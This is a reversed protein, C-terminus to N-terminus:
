RQLNQLLLLPLRSAGSCFGPTMNDLLQYCPALQCSPLHQLASVDHICASSYATTRGDWPCEQVAPVHLLRLVKQKTFLDPWKNDRFNILTQSAAPVVSKHEPPYVFSARPQRELQSYTDSKCM